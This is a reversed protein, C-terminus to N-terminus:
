AVRRGMKLTPWSVPVRLRVVRVKAAMQKGQVGFKKGEGEKVRCGVRCGLERFLVRVGDETVQLDNRIDAPYTALEGPVNDYCKGGAIPPIHLTLACITTHLLMIEKRTLIPSTPAFTHRISSLLTDPLPLTSVSTGESEGGVDSALLTRLQSESPMKKSNPGKGPAKGLSRSLVLLILILRLIQLHTADGSEIIPEVRSSVYRSITNISVGDKVAKRWEEVPIQHLASLGGPVLTELPYVESPHTADLNPKPIPKAAQAIEQLDARSLHDPDDTKITDLVATASADPEGNGSTGVAAPDRIIANEVAERAAKRAKKTGFDSILVNRQERSTLHSFGFEESGVARLNQHMVVQPAEVVQVEDTQPDFVALYHRRRADPVHEGEKGVFDVKPHESSHLLLESPPPANPDNDDRNRSVRQGPGPEPANLKRYPTFPITDPLGLGSTSAIVPGLGEGNKLHTIKLVKRNNAPATAAASKKSPRGHEDAARERKKSLTSASM